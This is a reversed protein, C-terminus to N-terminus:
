RLSVPNNKFSPSMRKAPSYKKRSGKTRTGQVAKFFMIDRKQTNSWLVNNRKRKRCFKLLHHLLTIGSYNKWLGTWSKPYARFLCSLAVPLCSSTVFRCSSVVLLCSSMSFLCRTIKSGSVAEYTCPPRVSKNKTSKRFSFSCFTQTCAGWIPQWIGKM